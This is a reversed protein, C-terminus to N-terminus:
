ALLVLGRIVYIAGIGTVIWKTANRFQVDSMLHLVRAGLTTGFTALPAAALLWLPQPVAGAALAPAIYYAIKVGHSIVQTAAKTSVIMRRDVGEAVFFIDLLPGSVGAVVNLGTVSFGCVVAHVPKRADLELRKKPIWILAPVLGLVIFLWAEPLQITLSFLLAFAAASGAIYIAIVRWDIWRRLLVARWGNAVSQVTGHVVMAGAVPLVLVLVGMLMLGGAMGFIGSIFSTILTALLIVPWIM